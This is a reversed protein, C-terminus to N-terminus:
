ESVFDFCDSHECVWWASVVRGADGGVYESKRSAAVPSSGMLEHVEEQARSGM